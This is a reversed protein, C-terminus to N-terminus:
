SPQDGGTLGRGQLLRVVIVLMAAAILIHIFGHLTFSTIMGIIWLVLFAVVLVWLMPAEM